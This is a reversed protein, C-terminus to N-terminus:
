ETESSDEIVDHPTLLATDIIVESSEEGRTELVHGAIRELAVEPGNMVLCSYISLNSQTAEIVKSVVCEEKISADVALFRSLDDPAYDVCKLSSILSADSRWQQQLESKGLLQLVVSPCQVAMSEELRGRLNWAAEDDADYELAEYYVLAVEVSRSPELRGALRVVSFDGDIEVDRILEKMTRKHCATAHNMLLAAEILCSSNSNDDAVVICINHCSRHYRENYLRVAEAMASAIENATKNDPLECHGVRDLASTLTTM